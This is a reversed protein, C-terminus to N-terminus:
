PSGPETGVVLAVQLLSDFRALVPALASDAALNTLELPDDRLHYLEAPRQLFKIFHYDGSVLSTAMPGSRIPLESLIVQGAPREGSFYRALSQGPFGAVPPLGALDFMTQPLDALGVADEVVLGAPVRAPYRVVLPVELLQRYLSNGHSIRRHDGFHEGHDSTVIVVTNDLVGRGALESFMEGLVQDLYALTGDYQQESWRIEEATMDRYDANVDRPHFDGQPITSFRSRLPEPPLYPQHADFFNLFAFFPRDARRQWALFDGAVREAPKRWLIEHYGLRRRVWEFNFLVRGLRSFHIASGLGLPYDEYHHFGRALGSNRTGYSLNAVFGATVYGKSAFAESVVPGDTVFRQNLRAEIARPRRGTFMSGHSPLTWPATSLALGFRTGQAAFEQLRPTTPRDYGYLSLNQERVTDLVILLVNPLGAAAPPLRGRGRSEELKRFGAIGLGAAVLVVVLWPLTRRVLRAFGDQRRLVAIGTRYGALVALGLAVLKNMSTFLLLLTLFALSFLVMLALRTAPRRPALAAVGALLLAPLGIWLLNAAPTLWAAHPSMRLYRGLLYESALGHGAEIIGAVLALWIGALVLM